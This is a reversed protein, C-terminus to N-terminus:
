TPNREGFAPVHLAEQVGGWEEREQDDKYEDGVRKAWARLRVLTNQREGLMIRYILSPHKNLALFRFTSKQGFPEFNWPGEDIAWRSHSPLDSHRLEFSSHRFL